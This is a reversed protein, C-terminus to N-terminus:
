RCETFPIPALLITGRWNMHSACRALGPPAHRGPARATRAAGLGACRLPVARVLGGGGVGVQLVTRGTIFAFAYEGHRPHKIIVCEQFAKAAENEPNLAASVQM